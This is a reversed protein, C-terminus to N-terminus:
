ACLLAYANLLTTDKSQKIVEAFQPETLVDWLMENDQTVWVAARRYINNDHSLYKRIKELEIDLEGWLILLQLDTLQISGQMYLNYLDQAVNKRMWKKRKVLTDPNYIVKNIEGFIVNLMEEVRGKKVVTDIIVSIKNDQILSFLLRGILSEFNNGCLDAHSIWSLAVDLERFPNLAYIVKQWVEDKSEQTSLLINRVSESRYAFVMRRAVHMKPHKQYHYLKVSDNPCGIVAQELKRWPVGKDFFYRYHKFM